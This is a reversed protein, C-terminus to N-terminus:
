TWLSTQLARMDRLLRLNSQSREGPRVAASRGRTSVTTTVKVENGRNQRSNGEKRLKKIQTKHKYLKGIQEGKREMKLLLREQERQLEKREQTSVSAEVQRMLEEQESGSSSSSSSDSRRRSGTECSNSLVRSNCLQPQHRKLLSLVSQVNARVSHSCGASTGAVFPVDRLSLRYHPETFSSQQPSSTKSHSKKEKSQSSSLRPSVSQLLIRNTELGTQLQNAQDQVLKRQHEEEQLKMELRRIKRSANNQTRTLRFYEQELRELKELQAYESETGCHPDASKATEVPVQQKLLSTGDAKASHLMKKMHDLQQELKVCRSEAAALHTILAQNCNSKGNRERDTDTHDKLLQQTVKDSQLRTSSAEKGMTHLSLKADGKELELRRIKEQLNRLASLIQVTPRQSHRAPHHHDVHFIHAHKPTHHVLTSIFPRHAPYERYSPLSMSDSVVGRPAPPPCLEKERTADAGLTKSLTEMSICGIWKGVDRLLEQIVKNVQHHPAVLMLTQNSWGPIFLLEEIHCLRAARYGGRQGLHMMKVAKRLHVVASAKLREVSRAETLLKHVTNGVWFVDDVKESATFM